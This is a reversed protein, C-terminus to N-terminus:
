VVIGAVNYYNDKFNSRGTVQREKHGDRTYHIRAGTGLLEVQLVKVRKNTKRDAYVAITEM